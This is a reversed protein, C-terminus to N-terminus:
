RKALPHDGYALAPMNDWGGGLARILNVTSEAQQGALKVSARRAQLVTREADIVDLYNIEGESHQVHALQAARASATVAQSQTDTQQELIRLDALNDETERFATLVQQRYLAVNEDYVARANALDAKRRGGDFIPVNLSTGALPGLLFTRSSWNLLNGLTASEYGASGTLTLSPFFAAKAIGLRANAAAMAREAAAIDPRRELLSSPLGAPIRLGVAQLPQSAMTFEAPTKGLLVALSHESAARLRMVTMADTRASALESKARAVDLQSIEGVDYRSQLLALAQERLEVARTFVETEADLQRLAFYNEAVDAQLALQVSRFLANAQQLDGRAANVTSAVRGFMDIEYSAGVQARWMMQPRVQTGQPLSQSAASVKQRTAGVGGDISPLEESRAARNMARAEEVRAAAAKLDQNAVLAQQELDNLTADNFVMWWEGRAVAEPPRAEKWTGRESETLTQAEKFAAIQPADPKHYEPTLSCAALLALAALLMPAGSTRKFIQKNM